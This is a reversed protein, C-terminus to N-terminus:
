RNLQIFGHGSIENGSSSKATYNYFYTGEAVMQGAPNRGDWGSNVDKITHLLNGWRDLIFCEFESVNSVNIFQYVDNVDDGNPTFTNPAELYPDVGVTIVVSTSDYCGQANTMVLTPTYTGADTYTTNQQSLDNVSVEDEGNGFNWIYNQGDQSTNTFTVELPANGSIPNATFSALYPNVIVNGTGSQTRQCVDTVTLTYTTSGQTNIPAYISETTSNNNWSYAYGPIGGSVTSTLEVSDLRPCDATANSVSVSMEPYDQIICTGTVTTTQGPSCPDPVETSVIITEQGEVSNDEIVDFDFSVTTDGPNFTITTPLNSHDPNTATGSYSLNLTLTTGAENGPRTFYFTNNGCGEYSPSGSLSNDAYISLPSASFSGTQLLIASPFLNDSCSAIAIKMHYTSDCYIESSGTLPVTWGNFQHTQDIDTPCDPISDLIGNYADAADPGTSTNPFHFNHAFYESNFSPNITETSIVSGDPLTCINDANYNGGAPNPGTLFMGFVDYYGENTTVGGLFPDDTPIANCPPAYRLYEESAWVYNLNFQNSQPVFDFELVIVFEASNGGPILPSLDPDYTLPSFQQDIIQEVQEVFLPDFTPQSAEVDNPGEIYNANELSMVLGDSINLSSNGEFRGLCIKPTNIDTTQGNFTVNSITVGNGILLNAFETPTLNDQTIQVQAGVSLSFATSTLMLVITKLM